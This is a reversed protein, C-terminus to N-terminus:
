KALAQAIQNKIEEISLAERQTIRVLPLHASSLISAVDRDRQQRRPALHSSDDLEIVVLPERTNKDCLVFDVSKKDIHWLAGTWQQGVIKHEVLTSLRMQAFVAYSFGYATELLSYLENEPPTM